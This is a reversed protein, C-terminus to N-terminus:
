KASNIGESYWKYLVRFVLFIVFNEQLFLANLYERKGHVVFSHILSLKLIRVDLKLMKLTLKIFIIRRMGLETNPIKLGSPSSNIM